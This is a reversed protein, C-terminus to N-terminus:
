AVGGGVLTLRSARACAIVVAVDGIPTPIRGEYEVAEWRGLGVPLDTLPRATETDVIISDLWEDLATSFVAVEVRKDGCGPRPGRIWQPAPLNRDLMHQAVCYLALPAMKEATTQATM